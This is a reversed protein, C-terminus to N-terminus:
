SELSWDGFYGDMFGGGHVYVLDEHFEMELETGGTAAFYKWGTVNQAAAADSARDFIVRWTSLYTVHVAVVGVLTPGQFGWDDLDEDPTKRGHYIDLRV